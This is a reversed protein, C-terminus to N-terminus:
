CSRCSYAHRCIFGGMILRVVICKGDVRMTYTVVVYSVLVYVGPSNVFFHTPIYVAIFVSLVQIWKNLSSM